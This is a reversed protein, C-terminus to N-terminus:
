QVTDAQIGVEFTLFICKKIIVTCTGPMVLCNREMVPKFETNALELM